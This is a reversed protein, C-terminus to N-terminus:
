AASMPMVWRTPQGTAGGIACWRAVVPLQLGGAWRRDSIGSTDATLVQDEEVTGTIAPLGTPAQNPLETNLVTLDALDLGNFNPDASTAAGLIVQFVQDGDITFDQVGNITVTQPTSWDGTTFTVSGVSVAGETPDSVSIPITVDATPASELVIQFTASGGEESVALGYCQMFVGDADGAGNGSWAVIFRGGEQAIVEPYLQNGTTTTNVVFEGGLKNGAWDFRQGVVATGDGDADSNWVVTINGSEDATISGIPQQASSVTNTNIRIEGGVTSGDAAYRQMFVEFSGDANRSQYEVVFRGDDLMVVDHYLQSNATTTNVQFEAGLANGSADFRQGFIGYNSGDQNESAWIVVFNGAADMGMSTVQQIGTTYTNVRFEGGQAVGSADFRQAYIGLSADPDQGNAVWAIVFDGDADMAITPSGQYGATATNVLFEGGQAVGAADFRQAYVGYSDGDQLSSMWTVVFNGADDMAVTPSLQNDATTTSILFEGGQATGDASFRQGYVGWGSGDQLNSGWVVIYNGTADTAMGQHVGAGIQQNDTTTTNVLTEGGIPVIDIPTVRIGDAMDIVNVTISQTDVGGNGDSVQITVNYVNDAGVDVPNEFDPASIFTLEGTSSNILFRAVDPSASLSYTLADGDVDTATVTTVAATNEQVNVAATAGGGDSTIVPADNVPDVRITVTVINSDASGDNAHYTFSDIGNFDATPTYTFSGDPNLIFAAANSPGTDLVATLPDGDLDFDNALVGNAASVNLTGDEAVVYGEWAPMEAVTVGDALTGHHGNISQDTVTTGSGEDFRWNGLLGIESGALQTNMNAQIELLTRETGWVRVEDIEGAFRQNTANERGGIQLENMAPYQDGIAGSGNYTDVVVGDAFTTVVGNNYTVALHTWEGAQAFYGTNHWGWSPDTNAFAWKIEGTDATIAVEYEGEKNIIIQTGTGAGSHRIWAEITMTTTVNLGAYDGIRVYDDVGDFVLGIRDERAVPASNVSAITRNAAFESTSGFANLDDIGVLGPTIIRTATATVYDGASLTVGSLVVGTFSADGSGDTTVITSGLYVRGEGHTPDQQGSANGYFEIRYQTNNGDTDLTGSVTLNTGALDYQTLNPFNQLSNPGGDIDGVDNSSVGNNALDIGSHANAYIANGLVTNDQTGNDHIRVGDTDNHAIINGEGAGTGGILNNVTDGSMVIGCNANGLDLTGTADTGIYNGQVITGTTNWSWITIGDNGAFAITNGAGAVSGGILTNTAGQNINVNNGSNSVAATGNVDTGVYNGQITNDDTGTGTVYIGGVNNGSIINRHGATTGGITNNDASNGIWVGYQGNGRDLTGTIDTGILNGQVLTGTVETTFTADTSGDIYVGSLTNGAIVNGANVATGGIRNNDSSLTVYVGHQGNAALTTGDAKLGIINGEVVNNDSNENIIIGSLGNGATVNGENPGTGGILNGTANDSVMIGHEANGALNGDKDIGVWNNQITNNDGFGTSGDIEIGEDAFDIVIFGKVTSDNARITIGNIGSAAPTASGDLTILPTGSYGPQTTADLIISDTILPLGAADVNITQPGGGGINFTITDTVGVNANANLIAEHLSGTGTANTNTVVLELVNTVTVSIAQTDEGGNGDSARVTVEYVNDTNADLPNEFNPASIFTLEGTTGNINFLAADAGGSISYNVTDLDVDTAVVTTVATNNEALIVNAAAGGGNSTIAPDDNVATMNITKLEVNSSGGDGDSLVVRM